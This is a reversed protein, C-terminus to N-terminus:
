NQKFWWAAFLGLTGTFQNLSKLIRKRVFIARLVTLFGHHYFIINKEEFYM